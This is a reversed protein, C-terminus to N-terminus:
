LCITLDDLKNDGDWRRKNARSTYEDEKVMKYTELNYCRIEYHFGLKLFNNVNALRQYLRGISM